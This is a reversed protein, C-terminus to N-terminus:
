EIVCLVLKEGAESNSELARGITNADTIVGQAVGPTASAALRQGKSIPGIVRVPVRGKLAVPPHTEDTGADKNMLFAPATSIVGFIGPDGAFETATIEKEGGIKVLTGPTYVADAEYREALDAYRASTSVGSFLTATVTGTVDLASSPSSNSIGVYGTSGNIFIRAAYVGGGNRTTLTMNGGSSQNRVDVDLGSVYLKLDADVGVTLGTDNAVALTGSTGTSTDARMFASSTLGSLSSADGVTGNFRNNSVSSSLNYGPKITSFGGISPSPTFEADKSIIGLLTGGVYEKIVTHNSVGDSVTDVTQGSTGSLSSFNPGILIWTTGNYIRLQDNTSDYWCDGVNAVTPQTTSSAAAPPVKFATGNYVKIAKATSDFWIQGEIPNAPATTNKFHEMVHIMNENLQEGWGAYNKGPLVLSTTSDLTGDAVTTLVTGDTKNITYPM